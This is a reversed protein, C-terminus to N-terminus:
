EETASRFLKAFRSDLCALGSERFERHLASWSSDPAAALRERIFGIVDEDSVRRGTKAVHPKLDALWEAARRRFAASGWEDASVSALLAETLRSNVSTLAGRVKQRIRADCDLINKSLPHTEPAGVCVILLRNRVRERVELLSPTLARLYPESVSVLMTRGSDALDVLRRPEGPQPGEWNALAAWWTTPEPVTDFDGSAFTASYPHLKASVSVLGYGASCVFARGGLQEVRSAAKMCHVWHDGRYLEAAPSAEGKANSLREIWQSARRETAGEPVNRVCLRRDPVSRKGRACTIILDLMTCTESVRRRLFQMREAPPM